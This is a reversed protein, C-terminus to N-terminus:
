DFFMWRVGVKFSRDPAPMNPALYYSGMLGSNVHETKFFISAHKIKMQFFFDIFPYNGIMKEKQWYYQGLAPMYADGYYSTYYSIDFGLQVETVKKFWKGQYYFSHDTVFQPIHIIDSSAKQWTIKNNLHFHGLRFNKQVFASYVTVVTDFQKPAFTSDFYMYGYVQNMEGGFLFKNKPDSYYLKLKTDSTKNFSNGWEFHNSFYNSYIFPVNRYDKVAELFIKKDNKLAAVLDLNAAYDGKNSGSMIYKGDLNWYFGTAHYDNMRKRLEFHVINDLMHQAIVKMSDTYQAVYLAKQSYSIEATVKQFFTSKWSVAHEFTVIHTSDLTKETDFFTHKYFGSDIAAETYAAMDDSADFSYSLSNTPRVRHGVISDGKMINDKKGFYLSQKVYFEEHLRKTRANLLNIPILKKDGFLNTDLNKDNSIGGNEDTKISSVIGNALLSYRNNKSTHNITLSMNNDTCNQRQYFGESRIRLMSLAINWQKNINQTHFLKAYQEKKSGFVAFIETYPTRTRYYKIEDKNYGFMDLNDFGSRFGIGSAPEFILKRNALGLQYPFNGPFYRQVGDMSTDVSSYLSSNPSFNM